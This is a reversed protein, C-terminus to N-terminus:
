RQKITILAGPLHAQVEAASTLGDVEIVLKNGEIRPQIKGGRGLEKAKDMPNEGDRVVYTVICKDQGSDLKDNISKNKGDPDFDGKSADGHTSKSKDSDDNIHQDRVRAHGEEVQGGVPSKPDHNAGLVVVPRDISRGRDLQRRPWARGPTRTPPQVNVPSGQM